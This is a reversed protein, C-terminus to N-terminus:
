RLSLIVHEFSLPTLCFDIGKAALYGPDHEPRRGDGIFSLWGARAALSDVGARDIKVL